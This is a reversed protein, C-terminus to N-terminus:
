IVLIRRGYGDMLVDKERVYNTDARGIEVARQPLHLGIASVPRTLGRTGLLPM